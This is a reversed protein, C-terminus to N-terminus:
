SRGARAAGGGNVREGLQETGFETHVPLGPWQTGSGRLFYELGPDWTHGTSRRHYVYGLPHTRYILGGARRVRDILGRDVSRPVPRWGGVQELDGRALLMTGGAVATTFSEPAGADRRVTTNLAELHVFEAAKGVLTAGSHHRALVLDWVHEPGYTDDDDFKTVLSGRARATAEGLAAGFSHGAPVEHIELPRRCGALRSRLDDPLTVGHLCLVIELDPYSQAEIAAVAAPVEALRRTVLIASVPPVAGLGPFAPGALGTLAFARGHRRLVARRQRVARTEWDLSTAHRDPLEGVLLDAVERALQARCAPPLVPSHVPVGAAVLRLLLATEQAPRLGPVSRCELLGIGALAAWERETLWGRDPRGSLDLGDPGVIRWGPAASGVPLILEARPADPGFPGYRGLPVAHEVDILVPGPDVVLVARYAEEVPVRAVVPDASRESTADGEVAPTTADGDVAPEGTTEQGTTPQVPTAMVPTTDDPRIVLDYPRIEPNGPLEGAIVAINPGAGLWDPVVDHATVDPSAPAPLPRVPTLLPLVAALVSRLPVSWRLELEIAARGQDHRPMRIRQALLHPLPGLRGSWSRQPIQWEDVVIQVQRVRAQSVPQDLLHRLWTVSQAAVAMRVVFVRHWPRVPGPRGGDGLRGGTGVGAQGGPAAARGGAMPDTIETLGSGLMAVPWRRHRRHHPEGAVVRWRLYKEPNDSTPM